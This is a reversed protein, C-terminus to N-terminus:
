RSQAAKALMDFELNVKRSPGKFGLTTNDLTHPIVYVCFAGPRLDAVTLSIGDVAVSGKPLVYGGQRPPIGIEFSLNGRVFSKKRIVGQCDVHGLVFHGSIRDGLKLSRELNVKEGPCLAGLNTLGLTEPMVEFQLNGAKVKVVTLCAGNVCISDGVATGECAKAADISLLSVRGQRSLARVTGLEEVIGTFM